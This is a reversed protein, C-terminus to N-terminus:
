ANLRFYSKGLSYYIGPSPDLKAAEQYDLIAEAVQGKMEAISGDIFHELARNKRSGSDTEVKKDEKKNSEIGASCGVFILTLTIYILYNRM